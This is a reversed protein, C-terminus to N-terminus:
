KRCKEMMERYKHKAFYGIYVITPFVLAFEVSIIVMNPEVGYFYGLFFISTIVVIGLASFVIILSMGIAHVLVKKWDLPRLNKM